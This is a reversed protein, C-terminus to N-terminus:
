APSPRVASPLRVSLADYRVGTLRESLAWLRSADGEDRAQPWIRAPAPAGRMERLGRPGWYRGGEVDPMTAAYLIPLAGAHEDQGLLRFTAEALATKWRPMGAAALFGTTALGPHAAVSKLAVGRASFGRARARRDLEIAFMLNALKSQSYAKGPSYRRESQPDDFDIRGRRHALSAVAVIRPEPARLLAPMLRGTLAFPGLHNTAFQREFGDVSTTRTPQFGLGANNILCDIRTHDAMIADAFAAISALDAMDVIAVAVSAGPTRALIRRRTAEGRIRDRVALIVTASRGALAEAAAAGIGSTAGTVICLRGTQDPVDAATWGQTM